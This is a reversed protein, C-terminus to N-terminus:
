QIFDRQTIRRVKRGLISLQLVQQYCRGLLPGTYELDEDRGPCKGHEGVDSVAELGIAPQGFFENLIEYGASYTTPSMDDAIEDGQIHTASTPLDDIGSSDLAEPIDPCNVSLRGIILESTRLTGTASAKTPTEDPHESLHHDHPEISIENL